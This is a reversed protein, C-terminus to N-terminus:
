LVCKHYIVPGFVNGLGRKLELDLAYFRPIGRSLFDQKYSRMSWPSLHIVRNSNSIWFNFIPDAALDYIIEFHVRLGRVM